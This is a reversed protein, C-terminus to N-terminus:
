AAKEKETEVGGVRSKIIFTIRITYTAYNGCIQFRRPIRRSRSIIQTPFAISLTFSIEWAASFRRVGGGGIGLLFM